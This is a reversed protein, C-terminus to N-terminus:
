SQFDAAERSMNPWFYGLLQLRGYLCTGESVKALKNMYKWYIVQISICRALVERPPRGYINRSLLAYDKLEKLDITGKPSTLKAKLSPHM